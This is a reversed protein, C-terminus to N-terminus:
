QHGVVARPRYGAELRAIVKPDPRLAMAALADDIHRMRSAGLISSTVFPRALVWATALVAPTVGLKEAERILVKRIAEDQPNGIDLAQVHQDTRGRITTENTVPKSLGSGALYGRALPSWPTMALGEARIMPIMEREEERYVLNYYNQVSAFQAFGNARQIGILKMLEWAYMSSAGLYLVKGMRVLDHLAEAIEEMRTEPDLRHIIYLDIYDTGLRKLSADAAEMIHKRSLGKQNPGQGMPNFVKTAIVVEERRAYEKLARGTIGESEGLSYMDATDFFNIGVEIARRFFPLSEEERLVWERWKPDGYTMCGLCLRSVKMGTSGFRVYEM